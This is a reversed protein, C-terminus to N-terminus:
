DLLTKIMQSDAIALEEVVDFHHRDSQEIHTIRAGLGHWATALLLNQRVFESREAAGVWCTVRSNPLPVLLAPSEAEAEKDSLKLTDNLKLCCLPRLDSVPSIVMTHVIRSQVRKSLPSKNCIMRAVLHGGASHGVLRIPGKINGAVFEIAKAIEKTIGSISIDPCLTYSPMAVIWGKDLAGKAMHSWYSKDFRYWYGGHIFVMLGKPEDEPYFIDVLNRTGQGYSLDFSARGDKMLARRFSAALKPWRKIFGAADPIHDANAYADDWDSIEHFQM